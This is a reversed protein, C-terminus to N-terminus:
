TLCFCIPQSISQIYRIHFSRLIFCDVFHLYELCSKRSKFRAIKSSHLFPRQLYYLATTKDCTASVHMDSTCKQRQVSVCPMQRPAPTSPLWPGAGLTQAQRLTSYLVVEVACTQQKFQPFLKIFRNCMIGKVFRSM